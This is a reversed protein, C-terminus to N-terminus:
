GVLTGRDRQRPHPFKVRGCTSSNSRAMPPLRAAERKGEDLKSELISIAQQMTHTDHLLTQVVAALSARDGSAALEDARQLIVQQYNSAQNRAERASDNVNSMIRQLDSNVRSATESDSDAVYKRYVDFTIEDTLRAGQRTLTDIAENLRPNAGTVYEYWVAFSIPHLGAAQRSMLPVTLRLYEATKDVDQRYRLLAPPHKSEFNPAKM